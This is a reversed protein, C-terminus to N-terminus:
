KDAFCQISILLKIVPISITIVVQSCCPVSVPANHIVKVGFLVAAMVAVALGVRGVRVVLDVIVDRIFGKLPLIVAHAHASLGAVPASRGM